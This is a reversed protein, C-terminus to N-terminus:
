IFEKGRDVAAVPDVGVGESQVDLTVDGHRGSADSTRNAAKLIHVAVNVVGRTRRAQAEGFNERRRRFRRRVAYINRAPKMM